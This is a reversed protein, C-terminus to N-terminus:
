VHPRRTHSEPRKDAAAERKEFRGLLPQVSSAADAGHRRADHQAAGEGHMGLHRENQVELREIWECAADLVGHRRADHEAAGAEHMSLQQGVPLLLMKTIISHGKPSGNVQKDPAAACQVKKIVNTKQCRCIEGSSASRSRRISSISGAVRMVMASTPRWGHTVRLMGRCSTNRLSISSTALFLALAAATAAVTAVAHTWLPPQLFLLLLLQPPLLAMLLLLLLLQEPPPVQVARVLLPLPLQPLSLSQRGAAAMAPPPRLELQTPLLRLGVLLQRSGAAAMPQPALREPSPPQPLLPLLVLAALEPRFSTVLTGSATPM